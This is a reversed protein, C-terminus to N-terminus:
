SRRLARVANVILDAMSGKHALANLQASDVPSMVPDFYLCGRDQKGRHIRDEMQLRDKLSFTHDHFFERHCRDDGEQGILTHALSASSIQAVMLRSTSDDNFKKKQEQLEDPKMQGRIYAPNLKKKKFFDYLAFGMERYFHVVIMKTPSSDMLDLAAKAKPNDKIDEIFEVKGEGLILGSTIQRLKDAQSIVMNATFEQGNVLTIFDDLMEKYHKRQKNTMELNIPISLKEPCGEWWDTKVARFSCSEQIAHLEDENRVGVVKKGMFGGLMAFRNRFAYPNMGNLQGICKFQGFLDMVNQVMPTGNLLRVAKARKSLDLVVRYNESQFNKIASSEDVILLCPYKDMIRKLPEYGRGRVSEFNISNLVVRGPYGQVMEDTPWLRCDFNLGWEAPALTWDKKFSAPAIVIITHIRDAFNEVYDNLVLATKGLGMEAFYAYKDHGHSRKLAEIQVPYPTGKLHWAPKYKM